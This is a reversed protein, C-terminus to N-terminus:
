RVSLRVVRHRPQTGRARRTVPTLEWIALEGGPLCVVM